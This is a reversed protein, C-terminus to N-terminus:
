KEDQHKTKDVLVYGQGPEDTPPLPTGEVHTIEGGQVKKGDSDVVVYQGSKPSKQGPKYVTGKPKSM